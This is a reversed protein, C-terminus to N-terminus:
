PKWKYFGYGTIALSVVMLVNGTVRFMTTDSLCSMFSGIGMIIVGVAATIIYLTKDQKESPRM